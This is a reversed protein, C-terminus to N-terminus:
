PSQPTARPTPEQMDGAGCGAISSAPSAPSYSYFDTLILLERRAISGFFARRRRRLGSGVTQRRFAGASTRRRAGPPAPARAGRFCSM